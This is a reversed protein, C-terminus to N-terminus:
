LPKRRDLRRAMIWVGAVILLVPSWKSVVPDYEVLWGFNQMLLYAGVLILIVPGVVTRQRMPKTGALTTM